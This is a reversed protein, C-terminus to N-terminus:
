SKTVKITWFLVASCDALITGSNHPTGYCEPIIKKVLIATLTEAAEALIDEKEDWTLTKKLM